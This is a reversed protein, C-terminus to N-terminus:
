LFDLANPRFNVEQLQTNVHTCEVAINLAGDEAALDSSIICNQNYNKVRVDM